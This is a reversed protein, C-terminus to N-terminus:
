RIVSFVYRSLPSEKVRFYFECTFRRRCDDSEIGLLQFTMEAFNISFYLVFKLIHYLTVVRTNRYKVFVPNTFQRMQNNCEDLPRLKEQQHQYHSLHVTSRFSIHATYVGEPVFTKQYFIQINVQVMTPSVPHIISKKLM